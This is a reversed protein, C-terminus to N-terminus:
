ADEYDKLRRRCVQVIRSPTKKTTKAFVELIIVAEPNVCYIIRWTTNRNTIRLEHCQRGIEPMPRSHPLSLIEGQQLKRLLYGAELRAVKSFPPTKVAGHLWM